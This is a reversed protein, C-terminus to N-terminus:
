GRPGADRTVGEESRCGAGGDALIESPNEGETAAHCRAKKASNMTPLMVLELLLFLAAAAALVVLARRDRASLSHLFSTAIAPERKRGGDTM